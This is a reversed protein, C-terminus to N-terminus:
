VNLKRHLKLKSIGLRYTKSIDQAIELSKAAMELAEQRGLSLIAGYEALLLRLNDGAVITDIFHNCFVTLNQLYAEADHEDDPPAPNDTMAAAITESFNWYKVMVKGITLFTLDDLVERTAATEPVGNAVLQDIRSYHDPMWVLITIKGLKYLMACVFAEDCCIKLKKRECIIKAMLASLMSQTLLKSIHEKDAGAKIFDEFLAIAVALERIVTFGLVTVARLISSIHTGRFYYASNVVQLIKNTLSYDRLIVEALQNASSRTSGTLHVLEQVNESLAPLDAMNSRRFIERLKRQAQDTLHEMPTDLNEM